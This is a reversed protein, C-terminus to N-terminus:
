CVEFESIQMRNLQHSFRDELGLDIVDVSVTFLASYTGCIQLRESICSVKKWIAGKLGCVTKESICPVSPEGPSTM